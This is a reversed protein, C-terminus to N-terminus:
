RGRSDGFSYLVDAMSMETLRDRIEDALAWNRQERAEERHKVEAQVLVDVAAVDLLVDDVRRLQQLGKPYNHLTIAGPHAIGLSYFLDPMPIENLLARTRRGSVGALDRTAQM